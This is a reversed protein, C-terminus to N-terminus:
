ARARPSLLPAMRRPLEEKGMGPIVALIAEIMPRDRRASARESLAYFRRWGRQIPQELKVITYRKRSLSDLERVAAIVQRDALDHSNLM